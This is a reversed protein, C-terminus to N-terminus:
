TTVLEKGKVAHDASRYLKSFGSAIPGGRGYMNRQRPVSGSHRIPQGEKLLM